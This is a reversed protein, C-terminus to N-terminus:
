RRGHAFRRITYKAVEVGRALDASGIAASRLPKQAALVISECDDKGISQDANQEPKTPTM